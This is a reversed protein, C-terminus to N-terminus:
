AFEWERELFLSLCADVVDPDFKTGKASGLEDLAEDVTMAKRWPRDSMMAEMVDAVALIRAELLIQDGNIGLPYGSGDMREHHQLIIQAIPWPFEVSKLIDYGVKPHRQVMKYEEPTLAAPKELISKPISIKGLDHIIGALHIGDMQKKPLGLESGLALALQVSRKQHDATGPDTLGITAVMAQVTGRMARLMRKANEILEATRAKVREELETNLKELEEETRLLEANQLIADEYVSLLLSVMREPTADFDYEKGRFGFDLHVDEKNEEKVIPSELLDKIKSLLFDDDYPKTVYCDAKVSMGRIIDEPESLTSLMIVPTNRLSDDARIAACMEYGNMEPMELDTLVLAPKNERIRDLGDKGNSADVVNFGAEELLMTVQMSQTPSDEVVVITQKDAM